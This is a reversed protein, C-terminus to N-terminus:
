VEARSFVYDCFSSAAEMVKEKTVLEVGLVNQLKLLININISDRSNVLDSFVLNSFGLMNDLANSGGYATTVTLGGTGKSEPQEIASKKSYYADKLERRQEQTIRIRCSLLIPLPGDTFKQNQTTTTM